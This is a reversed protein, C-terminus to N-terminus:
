GHHPRVRGRYRSRFQADHADGGRALHLASLMHAENPLAPRLCYLCGLADSDILRWLRGLVQELKRAPVRLEDLEADSVFRPAYAQARSHMLELVKDRLAYGLPM